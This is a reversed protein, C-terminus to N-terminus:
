RVQLPPKAVSLKQTLINGNQIIKSNPSQCNNGLKESEHITVNELCAMIEVFHFTQTTQTPKLKKTQFSCFLLTCNNIISQVKLLDTDFYIVEEQSRSSGVEHCIIKDLESM